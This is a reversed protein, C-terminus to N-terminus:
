LIDVLPTYGYLEQFMRAREDALKKLGRRVDQAILALTGSEYMSWKGVLQALEATDLRYSVEGVRHRYILRIEPNASVICLLTSVVDGLLPRDIHGYQFMVKVRTGEGRRSVLSLVGHCQEALHKLLPLGLGVRRATRSTTFPDTVRRLEEPSMGQGDDAIVLELRDQPLNETVSITVTRAQAAIANEVIDLLHLSLDFM